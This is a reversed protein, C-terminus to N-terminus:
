KRNGVLQAVHEKSVVLDLLARDKIHRQTVPPIYLTEAGNIRASATELEDLRCKLLKPNAIPLTPTLAVVVEHEPAYFRTLYNRLRTFREPRSQQPVYFITELAGIQWLLCPVDSQLPRERLLLDTAEYMQLGDVAPDLGLDIFLCDMASIGPLTKVRLGRRAGEQQIIKTPAVFVLPHGYVAFAVPPAEMAADLVTTSIREYTVSRSVGEEYFGVLKSVSSSVTALYDTVTDDYHLAFVRSCKRLAADGEKTIQRPGVMGLGVIYIHFPIPTSEDGSMLSQARHAFLEQACNSRARM